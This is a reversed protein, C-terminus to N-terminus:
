QRRVKADDPMTEGTCAYYLAGTLTRAQQEPLIQKFTAGNPMMVMIEDKLVQIIAAQELNLFLGGEDSKILFYKM